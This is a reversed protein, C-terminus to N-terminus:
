GAGALGSRVSSDRHSGAVVPSRPKAPNWPCSSRFRCGRSWRWNSMLRCAASAAEPSDAVEIRSVLFARPLLRRNEYLFTSGIHEREVLDDQAIPFAANVYKVNLLGLLAANPQIDKLASRINMRRSALFLRCRSQVAGHASAWPQMFMIYRRLQLPDIGDALQLQFQQAVHQPVSYSPSYARFQGPQDALWAAPEHGDAFAEVLGIPRYLSWALALLDALLLVTIALVFRDPVLRRHVRLMILLVALPAFIALTWLSISRSALGGLVGFLIAFVCAATALLV